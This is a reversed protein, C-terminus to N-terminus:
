SPLTLTRNMGARAIRRFSSFIISNNNISIASTYHIILFFYQYSPTAGKKLIM